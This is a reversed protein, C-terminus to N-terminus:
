SASEELCRRYCRAGHGGASGWRVSGILRTFQSAGLSGGLLVPGPGGLCQAGGERSQRRLPAVGPVEPGRERMETIAVPRVMRARRRERVRQLCAAACCPPGSQQVPNAGAPTCGCARRVAVLRIEVLGHAVHDLREAEQRRADLRELRPQGRLVSRHIARRPEDRRPLEAGEGARQRGGDHGARGATHDDVGVTTLACQQVRQAVATGLAVADFRTTRHGEMGQLLAAGHGDGLRRLIQRRPGVARRAAEHQAPHDVPQGQV